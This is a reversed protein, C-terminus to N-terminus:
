TFRGCRRADAGEWAMPWLKASANRMSRLGACSLDFAAPTEDRMGLLKTVLGGFNSTTTGVFGAASALVLQQVVQSRGEDEDSEEDQRTGEVVQHPTKGEPVRVFYKEPMVYTPLPALLAPLRELTSPESSALLVGSAGMEDALARAAAVYMADSFPEGREKAGLDRKDGRRVHLALLRASADGPLAMERKVRGLMATTNANPRFIYRTLEKRLWWTDRPRRLGLKAGLAAALGPPTKKTRAEKLPREAAAVADACGSFPEFYCSLDRAPCLRKNAYRMGGHAVLLTHAGDDDLDQQLQAAWAGVLSSLQAGFGNRWDRFERVKTVGACGEHQRGRLYAQVAASDHAEDAAAAAAASGCSAGLLKRLRPTACAASQTHRPVVITATAEDVSPEAFRATPPPPPPPSAGVAPIQQGAGASLQQGAGVVPAAGGGLAATEYRLLVVFLVLVCTLLAPSRALSSRASPRPPAM